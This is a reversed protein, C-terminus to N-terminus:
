RSAAPLYEKPIATGPAGLFASATRGSMLTVFLVGAERTGEYLRTACIMRWGVPMKEPKELMGPFPPDTRWGNEAEAEPVTIRRAMALFADATEADPIPNGICASAHDVYEEVVSTRFYRENM